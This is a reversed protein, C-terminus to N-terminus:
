KSKAAEMELPKANGQIAAIMQPSAMKDMPFYDSKFNVRVDGSLKAKLEGKAESTEDVASGVTAVHDTNIGASTSVDVPSFWSSYSASTNAYTSVSSRDHMSARAQRRAIDGARMDFVVKAQIQGDTVVIRNIGLIVMSALLQQRSRAIQLRAAQVLRAEQAEDSIDTIQQALALDESVRSLVAQADVGENVALKVNTAPQEGEAFGGSLQDASITFADPYKGALWDRANNMSINDQAYQDVTKAVNALLEGYARMQKISADVIAQFVNEILGGVFKPFDVKGILSGFAETYQNAAGAKFDQSITRGVGASAKRRADDTADALPQVLVGGGPGLEERALGDPNAMYSAVKVMTRALERKKDDPLAQFGESSELMSRVHPRVVALTESDIWTPTSRVAQGHHTGSPQAQAYQM